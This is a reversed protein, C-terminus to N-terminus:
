KSWKKLAKRTDLNKISELRSFAAEYYRMMVLKDTFGRSPQPAKGSIMLLLNEIISPDAHISLISGGGFRLNVETFFFGKENKFGQICCPGPIRTKSLFKKTLSIIEKDNVTIGKMSIGSETALRVRPVISLPKGSFDSFVDITFEDGRLIEQIIPNKLTKVANELEKENNVIRIGSGGRGRDPKIILPFRHKDTENAAFSKACPLRNDEFFRQTNIKSTFVETINYDPVFTKVGMDELRQKHKSIQLVEEEPGSLIANPKEDEIIKILSPIFSQSSGMPVNFCRAILFGSSVPNADIGIVEVGRAQLMKIFTIGAPSGVASRILKIKGM